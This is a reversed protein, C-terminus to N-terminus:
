TQFICFFCNYLANFICMLAKLQNFYSLKFDKLLRLLKFRELSPAQIFVTTLFGYSKTFDGLHGTGTVNRNGDLYLMIM